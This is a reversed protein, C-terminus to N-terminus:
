LRLAIEFNTNFLGSNGIRPRRLSRAGDGQGQDPELCVLSSSAAPRREVTFALEPIVAIALPFREGACQLIEPWVVEVSRLIRPLYACPARRVHRSRRHFLTPHHNGWWSEMPRRHGRSVLRYLLDVESRTVGFLMDMTGGHRTPIRPRTSAAAANLTLVPRSRKDGDPKRRLLFM